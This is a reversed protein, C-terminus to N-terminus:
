SREAIEILNHKARKEGMAGVWPKYLWPYQMRQVIAHTRPIIPVDKWVAEEMAIAAQNREKQGKEPRPHSQLQQWAQKAEKAADGTKTSWNFGSVNTGSSTDTLPPNVIQLFYAMSPWTAGWSLMFGQTKGSYFREVLTSVTAQEISMEIHAASLKDRLLNLIQIQESDSALMAFEFPDSPGYGAKEMISKAKDINSTELGYPYKKAHQSYDVEKNPWLKPPLLHAAVMDPIKYIKDIILQSNNVYAIAKRVPKPVALCNFGYFHTSLQHTRYYDVTLGNELPGYTGYELGDENEGKKQELSPDYKATPIAATDTNQNIVSYTYKPSSKEIIQWHTGATLPGKGHYDDRASVAIETGSKWTKLTYPGAGIPNKRTFKEYRMEGNYGKIDGVIGEPVAAFEASALIAIASPNPEKLEIRLTRNDIAKAALSNPVYEGKSNTKHNIGLSDLIARSQRSHSSAALREFSYVFDKATVDKGNSFTVDEKITFTYTKSQNSIEYNVALKPKAPIHRQPYDFLCDFIQQIVTLSARDTGAIPDLSTVTSNITKFIRDTKGPGEDENLPSKYSKKVDDSSNESTRANSETKNRSTSGGSGNESTEGGNESNNKSTDGSDGGGLCGAIALAAATSGTTQLFRRRTHDQKNAMHKM